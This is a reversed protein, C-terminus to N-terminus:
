PNLAINQVLTADAAVVLDHRGTQHGYSSAILRYDGEPLEISYDQAAAINCSRIEIMQPQGDDDQVQQRFSLTAYQEDDAGLSVTGTVVGHARGALVPDAVVTGGSLVTIRSFVAAKGHAWTVLNYTGPLVFLRYNFGDADEAGSITAALVIVEDRPDAADSDYHQLSVLAGEVSGSEATVLGEVIAYDGSSSASKSFFKGPSTKGSIAATNRIRL